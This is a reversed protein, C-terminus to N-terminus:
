KNKSGRLPGMGFSDEADVLDPLRTNPTSSEEGDEGFLFASKERNRNPAARRASKQFPSSSTPSSKSASDSTVDPELMWSFSSQAISSRTPVPAKPQRPLLETEKPKAGEHVENPPLALLPSLAAASETNISPVQASSKQAENESAKPVVDSKTLGSTSAQYAEQTDIPLPGQSQAQLTSTSIVSSPLATNHSVPSEPLPMTADELYIKVFDVKAIAIDMAKVYSEKDATPSVSVARLDSMAQDLMRALQANRAKLASVLARTSPVVKGEDLSWRSAEPTRKVSNNRSAQLGKKVEGVADRVAQNIGLREGREFVGKAAGQFLAEVGGQQQLFRAPSLLPSKSGSPNRKLELPTIPRPVSEVIPAKGSYKSIIKAGGAPSFNDRLFMADSVFTQPGNPPEPAPYKLLLM